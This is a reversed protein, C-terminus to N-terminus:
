MGLWTNHEGCRSTPMRCVWLCVGWFTLRILVVQMSCAKMKCWSYGAVAWSCVWWGCCWIVKVKDKIYRGDQQKAERHIRGTCLKDVLVLVLVVGGVMHQARQMLSQDLGVKHKAMHKAYLVPKNRPGLITQAV